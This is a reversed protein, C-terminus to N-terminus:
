RGMVAQSLKGLAKVEAKARQEEVGKAMRDICARAAQYQAAAITKEMFKSKREALHGYRSPVRYAIKTGAALAKKFRKPPAASVTGDKKTVWRALVKLGGNKKDATVAVQVGRKAGVLTYARTQDRNLSTKVTQYKALTGTQTPARKVAERKLVGGAAALAKKTEVRQVGTSFSGLANRAERAGEVTITLTQDAM